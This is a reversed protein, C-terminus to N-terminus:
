WYGGGGVGLGPHLRGWPRENNPLSSSRFLSVSVWPKVCLYGWVSLSECSVFAGLHLGQMGWGGCTCTGVQDRRLCSGSVLALASRASVRALGGVSWGM